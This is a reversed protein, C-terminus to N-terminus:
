LSLAFHHGCFKTIQLHGGLFIRRTWSWRLYLGQHGANKRRKSLSQWWNWSRPKPFKWGGVIGSLGNLGFLTYCGFDEDDSFDFIEISLSFISKFSSSCDATKSLQHCDIMMFLPNLHSGIEAKNNVFNNCIVNSM